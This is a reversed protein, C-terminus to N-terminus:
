SKWFSFFQHLKGGEYQSKITQYKALQMQLEFSNDEALTKQLMEEYQEKTIKFKNIVFSLLFTQAKNLQNTTFVKNFQEKLLELASYRFLKTDIYGFHKEYKKYLKEPVLPLDGLEKPKYLSFLSKDRVFLFQNKEPLKYLYMNM